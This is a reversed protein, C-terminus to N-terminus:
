RAAVTGIAEELIEAGRAIEEDTIVLPPMLRLANPRVRNVLLGRELCATLVDGAVERTFQVAQLLGMGRVEQVLPQRDALARLCTALHEGARRVRGPIDEALVTQLVARAAACALPNGGFTSGHDGYTLVNAKEKVLFAGIPVGGGLGKALALVDPEVGFAQYGFLHGLRGIGTQVEDLMLLLGQADCWERVQRLYNPSSVNVGGEGQVPELLVAVTRETTAEVIADISNFPVHVFGPTLPTFPEQYHPQGTAALTGLTRGHFSDLATIIEYAGDRKAKGYRRAVKLAGEVAEAGSNCFFVRDMCSNEILLRALEVQPVTYFANSVQILTRAQEAIAEVLAPHSHGLTATAWGGVFDLYPRGQDDWVTSGQGRVLTVPVRRVTQLYYRSELDQWNTPM